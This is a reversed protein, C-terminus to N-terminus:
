DIVSQYFQISFVGVLFNRCYPTNLPIPSFLWSVVWVAKWVSGRWRFLALIFAKLSATGVSGTYTVTMWDNYYISFECDLILIWNNLTYLSVTSFNAFPTSSYSFSNVKPPIVRQIFVKMNSLTVFLSVVSTVFTSSFFNQSNTNGM